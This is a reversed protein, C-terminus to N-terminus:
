RQALFFLISFHRNAVDWAAKPIDGYWDTRNLVDLEDAPISLHVDQSYDASASRFGPDAPYIKPLFIERFGLANLMALEFRRATTHNLLWMVRNTQAAM